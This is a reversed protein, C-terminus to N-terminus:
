LCRVEFPQALITCIVKHCKDQLGSLYEHMMAAQELHPLCQGEELDSYEM